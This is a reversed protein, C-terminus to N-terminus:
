VYPVSKRCTKCRVCVGWKTYGDGRTLSVLTLACRMGTASNCQGSSDSKSAVCTIACYCFAHMALRCSWVQCPQTDLLKDVLQSYCGDFQKAKVVVLGKPQSPGKFPPGCASGPTAARSQREEEGTNQRTPAAEPSARDKSHHSRSHRSRKSRDAEPERSRSRKSRCLMHLTISCPFHAGLSAAFPTPLFSVLGSLIRATSQLKYM